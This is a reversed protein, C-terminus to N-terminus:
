PSSASAGVVTTRTTSMKITPGAAPEAPAPVSATAAAGTGAASAAPTSAAMPAAPAIAATSSMASASDGHSRAEDPASIPDGSKVIIFLVIFALTILATIMKWM